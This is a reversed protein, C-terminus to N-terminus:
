KMVVAFVMNIRPVSIVKRNHFFLLAVLSAAHFIMSIAALAFLPNKSYYWGNASDQNCDQRQDHLLPRESRMAISNQPKPAPHEQANGNHAQRLQGPDLSTGPSRQLHLWLSISSSNSLRVYASVSAFSGLFVRVNSAEESLYNFLAPM